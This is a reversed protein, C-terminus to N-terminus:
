LMYLKYKQRVEGGENVDAGNEILLKVIDSHGNGAAM